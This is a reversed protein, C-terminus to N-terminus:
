FRTGMAGGADGYDTVTDLASDEMVEEADLGIPETTARGELMAPAHPDLDYVRSTADILDKYAGFPHLLLEEIFARTMDYIRGDEDRRRLAKVVRHERVQAQRKTPGQMKRYVIQNIRYDLKEGKNAARDAMEQNWVAWYCDAAHDPHYVLCPLYFRGERIDPELREIRDDKSHRGQRPTNLEEIKFHNNERVMMDEIVELDVQMGYHEYGIRVMQVGSHAEWKRKFSKIFEWRATLKMRHRVGDLLYKNGGQDVGIVVIATRDSREGTGKSPDCMIYVNMVAPIVDYNRLWASRFTAENGASPNLLMQASVTSRQDRKIQEWREQPLFVPAGTMTGDDTAPYIRPKLSKREIVVGCTDAYHYRTGPMWKRVGLHSGLNDALEWRETTKRISEESLYDQTVVDDYIHLQFHRSTPQGDILGHAEITAEKPNGKRKVTIGRELSWKAPRGDPGLMRPNRYLVDPYVWKLVENTEFEGKIQALFAHAIPKVVSFIAITIEPNCLVERIAGAFTIITSKYHFRAWLDIYGDPDREVERCRAFLWPHKADQRGLLVTLLFYRDNCGLLALDGTLPSLKQATEAYWAATEEYDFTFLEEQIFKALWENGPNRYREGRLKCIIRRSADGCEQNQGGDGPGNRNEPFNNYASREM